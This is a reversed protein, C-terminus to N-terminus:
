VSRSSPGTACRASAWQVLEPAYDHLVTEGVPHAEPALKRLYPMKRWVVVAIGIFAALAITLPIILFM